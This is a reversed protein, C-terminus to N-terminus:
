VGCREWERVKQAVSRFQMKYERSNENRHNNQSRQPLTIKVTPATAYRIALAHSKVKEISCLFISYHDTANWIFFMDVPYLLISLFLNKEILLQTVYM